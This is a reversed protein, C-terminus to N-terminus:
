ITTTSPHGSAYASDDPLATLPDKLQHTNPLCAKLVYLISGVDVRSSRHIANIAPIM